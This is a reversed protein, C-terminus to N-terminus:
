VSQGLPKLSSEGIDTIEKNEEDSLMNRRDASAKADGEVALATLAVWAVCLM